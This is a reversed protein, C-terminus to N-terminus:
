QKHVKHAYLFSVIFLVIWRGWFILRVPSVGNEDMFGDAVGFLPILAFICVLDDWTIDDVEWKEESEEKVTRHLRSVDDLRQGANYYPHGDLPSKGFCDNIIKKQRKKAGFM